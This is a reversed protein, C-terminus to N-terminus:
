STFCCESKGMGTPFIGSELCLKFNIELPKCISPGCIKLIRISIRDHGHVKKSDLNQMIELIDSSAFTINSWFKKTKLLLGSLLHRKNSVTCKKAFPSIFLDAKKTFYTVFKNEYLLPPIISTKENNLLVSFFFTAKLFAHVKTNKSGCLNKIFYNKDKIRDHGHVKKSDLNQITKLIDNSAFTIDSWFKETKLLLGSLLRSNNIVNCQKAFPSIFLDAKKTFYTVFKNEYFLPPIILTKENNFVMKLISGYVKCSVYSDNLIDTNM